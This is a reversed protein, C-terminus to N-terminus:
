PVLSGLFDATAEAAQSWQEEPSITAVGDGAQLGYSGFQAHNGGDLIIFQTDSPLQTRSKDFPEMGPKDKTGYISIVKLKASALSDDGPYAAWLVLGDLSGPHKSAYSAAAVGGLSHGGVAWHQINPYKYIVRDPANIDFFALNIRVKVMAVFYGRAAIQHLVPAYARYDVRGGPVLVFGVVPESALPEFTIFGDQQAVKVRADSELAQIAVESAPAAQNGWIVLGATMLLLTLVIGLFVRKIIKM